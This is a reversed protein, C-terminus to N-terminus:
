EVWITFIETMALGARSFNFQIKHSGSKRFVYEGRYRGIGVEVLSERNGADITYSASEVSTLVGEVEVDFLLSIQVGRIPRSPLYSFEIHQLQGYDAYLSINKCSSSVIAIFSLLSILWGKTASTTKGSM